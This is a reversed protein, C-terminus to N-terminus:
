EPPVEVGRNVCDVIQHARALTMWNDHPIRSEARDIFPEFAIRAQAKAFGCVSLGNKGMDDLLQWMAEALEEVALNRRAQAYADLTNESM